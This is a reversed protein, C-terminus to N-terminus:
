KNNSEALHLKMQLQLNEWTLDKAKAKWFETELTSNEEMTTNTTNILELYIKIIDGLNARTRCIPCYKTSRSDDLWQEICKKGFIHGCPLCVIDHENNNNQQNQCFKELCISCTNKVPLYKIDTQTQQNKSSDENIVNNSGHNNVINSSQNSNDISSFSFHHMRSADMGDSQNDDDDDDVAYFFTDEQEVESSNQEVNDDIETSEDTSEDSDGYGYHDEEQEEDNNNDDDYFITELDDSSEHNNESDYNCFPSSYIYHGWDFDNDSNLSDHYDSSDEFDSM